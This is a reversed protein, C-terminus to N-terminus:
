DLTSNVGAGLNTVHTYIMTAKASNHGLLEQTPKHKQFSNAIGEGPIVIQINQSTTNINTQLGADGWM